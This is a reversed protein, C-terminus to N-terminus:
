YGMITLYQQTGSLNLTDESSSGYEASVPLNAGSATQPFVLSNVFSVSATGNPTYQFLTLPSAQNDGYSGNSGTGSPVNTCTGGHVGCGSVAVVLNGPTFVPPSQAFAPLSVLFALALVIKVIRAERM